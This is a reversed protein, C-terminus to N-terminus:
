FPTESDPVPQHTNKTVDLVRQQGIRTTDRQVKDGVSPDERQEWKTWGEKIKPWMDGKPSKKHGMDLTAGCKLCKWKHYENEDIVMHQFIVDGSKCLGCPHYDFLEQCSAIFAFAEAQTSVAEELWINGIRTKYKAIM